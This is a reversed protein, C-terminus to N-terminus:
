TGAPWTPGYSSNTEKGRILIRRVPSRHRQQLPRYAAPRRLASDVIAWTMEVYSLGAAKAMTALNGTIALGPLTNLELVVPGEPSMMFDVRAAGSCGCIEYVKGATAQM